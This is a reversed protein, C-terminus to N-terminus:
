SANLLSQIVKFNQLTDNRNDLVTQKHKLFDLGLIGDESCISNSVVFSQSGNWDGIQIQPSMVVCKSQSISNVTQISTNM